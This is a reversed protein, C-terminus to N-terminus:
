PASFIHALQDTSRDINFQEVKSRGHLSLHAYLETDEILRLIAAALADADKEPVTLGTHEQEILEHIASVATTIVPIGLALSELLVNPLGDRDGNSAVLCPLVFIDAQDYHSTLEEQKLAGHLYVTQTLAHEEIFKQYAGYLEGGGIIRCEITYASKKLLALAQLLYIIGKKEVFRGISLIQVVEKKALDSERNKWKWHALDIGHYIHYLKDQFKPLVLGKLYARNVQTCTIIMQAATIKKILESEKTTYIDHAHGTGSFPIGMLDSMIAAVSTPTSLFHAHIHRVPLRKVQQVFYVSSFFYKINRLFALPSVGFAAATKVLLVFYTFGIEQILSFQARIKDVSVVACDYIVGEDVKLETPGRNLSLVKIQIHRKRLTAIENAIFGETYSPYQGVIYVIVPDQILM